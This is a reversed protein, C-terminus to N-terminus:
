LVPPRSKGSQCMGQIINAWKHRRCAVNSVAIIGHVTEVQVIYFCKNVASKSERFNQLTNAFKSNFHNLSTLLNTTVEHSAWLSMDLTNLMHWLNIQAECTVILLTLYIQPLIWLQCDSNLDMTKGIWRVSQVLM